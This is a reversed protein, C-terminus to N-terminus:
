EMCLGNGFVAIFEMKIVTINSGNCVLLNILETRLFTDVFLM